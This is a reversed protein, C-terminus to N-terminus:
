LAKNKILIKYSEVAESSEPFDKTINEFIKIAEDKLGTIYYLKGLRYYDTPKLRDKLCLRNNNMKERQCFIAIDYDKSVIFLEIM